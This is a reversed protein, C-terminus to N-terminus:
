NTKQRVENLRKKAKEYKERWEPHRDASHYTLRKAWFLVEQWAEHLERNMM